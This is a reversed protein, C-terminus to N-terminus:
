ENQTTSVWGLRELAEAVNDLMRFTVHFPWDGECSAIAAWSCETNNEPKPYVDPKIELARCMQTGLTRMAGMVKNAVAVHDSYDLDGFDMKTALEHCTAEHGPSDYLAKLLLRTSGKQRESKTKDKNLRNWADQLATGYREASPISKMHFKLLV